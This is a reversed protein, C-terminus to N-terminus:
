ECKSIIEKKIAMATTSRKSDIAKKVLGRQLRWFSQNSSASQRGLRNVVYKYITGDYALDDEKVFKFARFIQHWVINRIMGKLADESVTSGRKDQHHQFAVVAGQGNKQGEERQSSQQEQREGSTGEDQGNDTGGDEDHEM